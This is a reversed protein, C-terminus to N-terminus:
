EGKVPAIKTGATLIGVGELLINQGVTLGQDVIYNQGGPVPRVSIETAVLTSDSGITYVFKKGQIEFTTRQPIVIVDSEDAYMRVTASNGSRLLGEKNPFGARVNYSGTQTSVQGSITEIQGKEPYESGDPLILTMPPFNRIHQQFSTEPSNKLIDLLEKENISFYAYVKGINSIVTLPQATASNVYSGLKYPLDGVVGNVPSTITTYGLNTKANNLVAKAQELAAQKARLALQASELEYKSIIEQEVLPKAKAVQLEAAAIEAEISSIQATASRVDQEFQPNRIKFLTQGKKVLAGETVLIAEIYGDIKPRIEIDEEGRLLAPFDRYLTASDTSVTIVKYSAPAQQSQRTDEKKGCSFVFLLNLVLLAQPSLGSFHKKM